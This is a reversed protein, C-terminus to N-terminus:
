RSCRDAIRELHREIRELSKAQTELADVQRRELNSDARAPPRSFLLPSVLAGAVAAGLILLSPRM